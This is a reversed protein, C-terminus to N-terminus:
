KPARTTDPLFLKLGSTPWGKSSRRGRNNYTNICALPCLKYSYWVGSFHVHEPGFQPVAVLFKWNSASEHETMAPRIKNRDTEVVPRSRTKKKKRRPEIESPNSGKTVGFDGFSPTGM